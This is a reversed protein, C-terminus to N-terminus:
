SFHPSLAIFEEANINKLSKLRDFVSSNPNQNQFKTINPTTQWLFADAGAGSGYSLHLITQNPKAVDLVSCLGVLNCAAYLNGHQPATFGAAMQSKNLGLSAAARLPLKGNPMHLVAHDIDEIKLKNKELIKEGATKILRLFAENSWRGAHNPSIQGHSKWFDERNHTIAVHDVHNAIIQDQQPSILLSAAGSGATLFLTDGLKGTGMDAATVMQPKQTTKAKSLAFDLALTGSKCAFEVDGSQIEQNQINLAEIIFPATPNSAYLPTESGFYLGGLEKKVQNEDAMASQLCYIASTLGLTFSDDDATAVTRSVLGLSKPAAPSVGSIRALLDLDAVAQPFAFGYSAIGVQQKENNM